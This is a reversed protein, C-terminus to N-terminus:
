QASCTEEMGALRAYLRGDHESYALRDDNHTLYYAQLPPLPTVDIVYFDPTPAKGQLGNQDLLEVIPIFDNISQAIRSMLGQSRDWPWSTDGATTDEIFKDPGGSYKSILSSELVILTFFIAKVGINEPLPIEPAEPMSETQCAPNSVAARPVADMEARVAKKLVPYLSQQLQYDYGNRRMLIEIFGRICIDIVDSKKAEPFVIRHISKEDRTIFYDANPSNSKVEDFEQDNVIEVIIVLEEEFGSIKGLARNIFKLPICMHLYSHKTRANGKFVMCCSNEKGM